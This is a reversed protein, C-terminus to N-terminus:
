FVQFHLVANCDPNNNSYLIMQYDDEPINELSLTAQLSGSEASITYVENKSNLLGFSVKIGAGNWAAHCRISNEPSLHIQHDTFVYTGLEEGDLTLTQKVVTEDFECNMQADASLDTLKAFSPSVDVPPIYEAGLPVITEEPAITEEKQCSCFLVCLCLILCLLKRSM